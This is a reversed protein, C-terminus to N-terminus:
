FIFWRKYWGSSIIDQASFDDGNLITKRICHYTGLYTNSSSFNWKTNFHGLLTTGNKQSKYITYMDDSIPGKPYGINFTHKHILSNRRDKIPASGFSHAILIKFVVMSLILIKFMMSLTSTLNSFSSCCTTYFYQLTSVNTDYKVRRFDPQFMLGIDFGFLTELSICNKNSVSRLKININNIKLELAYPSYGIIELKATKRYTIIKNKRQNKKKSESRLSSHISKVIFHTKKKTKTDTYLM